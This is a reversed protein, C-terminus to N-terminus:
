SFFTSYRALVKDLFLFEFDVLGTFRFDKSACSAKKKTVRFSKQASGLQTRANKRRANKCKKRKKTKREQTEQTKREQTKREKQTVVTVGTVCLVGGM